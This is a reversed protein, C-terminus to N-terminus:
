IINPLFERNKNRIAAAFRRLEELVGHMCTRLLRCIEFHVILVRTHNFQKDWRVQGESLEEQELQDDSPRGESGEPVGCTEGDECIGRLLSASHADGNERYSQWRTVTALRYLFSM